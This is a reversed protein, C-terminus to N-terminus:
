LAATDQTSFLYNHWGEGFIYYLFALYQSFELKALTVTTILALKNCKGAFICSM